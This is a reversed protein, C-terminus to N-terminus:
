EALRRGREFAARVDCAVDLRELHEYLCTLYVAMAGFGRPLTIGAAHCRAGAVQFTSRLDSVRFRVDRQGDEGLHALFVDKAPTLSLRELADDFLAQREDYFGVYMDRLADGVVPLSEVFLPTPAWQLGGDTTPTFGDHRLDFLIARGHCLQHFYLALVVEARRAPPIEASQEFGDSGEDSLRVPLSSRALWGARERGAREFASRRLRNRGLLQIEAAVDSVRMAGLVRRSLLQQLEAADAGRLLSSLAGM